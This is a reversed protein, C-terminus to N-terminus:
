LLFCIWQNFKFTLQLPFICMFLFHEKTLLCFKINLHTRGTRTRIDYLKFDQFITVWSSSSDPVEQMAHLCQILMAVLGDQWRVLLNEIYVKVCNNWCHLFWLCKTQLLTRINRKLQQTWIKRTKHRVKNISTHLAKKYCVFTWPQRSKTLKTGM